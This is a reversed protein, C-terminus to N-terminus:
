SDMRIKKERQVETEPFNRYLSLTLKLNVLPGLGQIMRHLYWLSGVTLVPDAEFKCWGLDLRTQGTRKKDCFVFWEVEEPVSGVQGRGVGPPDDSYALHTSKLDCTSGFLSLSDFVAEWFGEVNENLTGSQQSFCLKGGFPALVKAKTNWSTRNNLRPM